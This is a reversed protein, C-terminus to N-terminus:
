QVLEAVVVLRERASGEPHCTTLTLRADETGDVVSVDSPDVSTVKRVRYLSTKEATYTRIEDGERLEGLGNFPQGHTTRHGAICSNGDEGPMPTEEYHGPGKALDSRGTGEVVYASLGISDIEIKGVFGDPLDIGGEDRPEMAAVAMEPRLEQYWRYRVATFSPYLAVAAGVLMLLVAAAIRTKSMGRM